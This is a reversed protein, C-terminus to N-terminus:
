LFCGGFRGPFFTRDKGDNEAGDDAQQRDNDHTQGDRQGGQGFGPLHGGEDGGNLVCEMPLVEVCVGHRDPNQVLVARLGGRQVVLLEGEVVPALDVIEDLAIAHYKIGALRQVLLFVHVALRPLIEEQFVRLGGNLLHLGHLRVSQRRAIRKRLGILFLIVGNQGGHGIVGLLGAKGVILSVAVNQGINLIGVAGGGRLLGEPFIEIVGVQDGGVGILDVGLHSHVVVCQLVPVVFVRLHVLAVADRLGIDGVDVDPVDEDGGGGLLAGRLLFGLLGLVLGFRLGLPNQLLPLLALMRLFGEALEGGGVGGVAAGIEVAAEILVDIGPLHHLGEVVPAEILAPFGAVGTDDLRIEAIVDDVKGADCVVIVPLLRCLTIQM